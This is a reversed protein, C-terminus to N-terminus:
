GIFGSVDEGVLPIGFQNFRLMGVFKFVLENIFGCIDAGVLLIGFQNFQLM